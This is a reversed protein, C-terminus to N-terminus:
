KTTGQCKRRIVQHLRDRVDDPLRFLEGDCYLEITKRTTDFVVQCHQCNSLHSCLDMKLVEDVDGDLYNSLEEIVKKCGILTV